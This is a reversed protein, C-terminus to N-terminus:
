LTFLLLYIDVAKAEGVRTQRGGDMRRGILPIHLRHFDDLGPQLTPRYEQLVRFGKYKNLLRDKQGGLINPFWYNM